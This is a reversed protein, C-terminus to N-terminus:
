LTQGHEGDQRLTDYVPWAGEARGNRRRGNREHLSVTCAYPLRTYGSGFELRLEAAIVNDLPIRHQQLLQALRQRYTEISQLVAPVDAAAPEVRPIVLDFVFVKANLRDVLETLESMVHGGGIYNQGSAFSAALDRLANWSETSHPSTTM